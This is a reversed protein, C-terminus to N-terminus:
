SKRTFVAKVLASQVKTSRVYFCKMRNSHVKCKMWSGPLVKDIVIFVTHKKILCYMPTSKQHKIYEQGNYAVQKGPNAYSYSGMCFGSKVQNISLQAKGNVIAKALDGKSLKVSETTLVQTSGQWQGKLDMAFSSCSAALLMSGTLMTAISRIKM